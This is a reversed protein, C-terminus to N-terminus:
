MLKFIEVCYTFGLKELIERYSYDKKKLKM